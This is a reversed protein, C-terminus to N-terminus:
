SNQLNEYIDKKCQILEKDEEDMYDECVEQKMPDIICLKKICTFDDDWWTCHACEICFEDRERKITFFAYKPPLGCHWLWTQFATLFSRCLDYNKTGDYSSVTVWKVWDFRREHKNPKRIYPIM